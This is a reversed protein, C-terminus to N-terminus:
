RKDVPSRADAVIPKLKVEAHSIGRVRDYFISTETDYEGWPERDVVFQGIAEAIEKATLRVIKEVDAEM